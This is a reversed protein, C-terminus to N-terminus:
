SLKPRGGFDVVLPTAWSTPEDRDKKWLTTGTKADLAVIFSGAEQDWNVVLTNGYLAPSAGEGWGLRTHMLGFDRMWELKGALNYCYIGRSGFSIYIQKGDTTPSAAAYSHTPHRGEHPVREAAIRQWQIKGTKRDIAILVFQHYTTPPKTKTEFRPDAKPLDAAAAPRGTDIATAIFIQDGWIIPTASGRGPLETKWRINTSDDWRLPPDAHPAVGDPELGAGSPGTTSGHRMM